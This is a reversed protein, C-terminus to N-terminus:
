RKLLNSHGGVLLGPLPHGSFAYSVRQGASKHRPAQKHGTNM